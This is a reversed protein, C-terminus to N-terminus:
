KQNHHMTPLVISLYLGIANQPFCQSSNSFRQTTFQTKLEKLSFKRARFLLGLVFKKDKLRRLWLPHTRPAQARLGRGHRHCIQAQRGRHRHSCGPDNELFVKLVGRTEEYILGSIRKVGVGLWAAFLPSLSAWTTAECFKATVSLAGRGWVREM